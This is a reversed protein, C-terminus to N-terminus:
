ASIRFAAHVSVQYIKALGCFQELFCSWKVETADLAALLKPDYVFFTLGIDDSRTVFVTDGEKVDLAAPMESNMAVVPSNSVKRMITYFTM